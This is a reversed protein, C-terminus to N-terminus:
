MSYSSRDEFCAETGFHSPVVLFPCVQAIELTQRIPSAFHTYLSLKVQKTSRLDSSEELTARFEVMFQTTNETLTNFECDNPGKEDLCIKYSFWLNDGQLVVVRENPYDYYKLPEVIKPKLDSVESVERTSKPLAYKEPKDLHSRRILSIYEDM